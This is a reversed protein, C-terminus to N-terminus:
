GFHQYLQAFLFVLQGSVLVVVGRGVRRQQGLIVPADVPAFFRSRFRGFATLNARQVRPGATHVIVASSVRRFIMAASFLSSTNVSGGPMRTSRSPWTAQPPSCSYGAPSRALWFAHLRHINRRRDVAAIQRRIFDSFGLPRQGNKHLERDPGPGQPGRRLEAGSSVDVADPKLIALADGVNAANLGGSLM